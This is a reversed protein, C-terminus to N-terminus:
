WDRGRLTHYQLFYKGYVWSRTWATAWSGVITAVTSLVAIRKLSREVAKFRCCQLVDFCTFLTLADCRDVKQYWLQHKAYKKQPPVIWNWTEFQSQPGLHTMVPAQDLHIAFAFAHWHHHSGETVETLKQSAIQIICRQHKLFFPHDPPIVLQYPLYGM